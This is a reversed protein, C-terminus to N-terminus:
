AAKRRGPALLSNVYAEDLPRRPPTQGSQLCREGERVSQVCTLIGSERFHKATRTRRGGVVVLSITESMLVPALGIILLRFARASALQLGSADILLRGHSMGALKLLLAERLAHMTMLASQGDGLPRELKLLLHTERDQFAFRTQGMDKLWATARVYALLLAFAVVIGIVIIM